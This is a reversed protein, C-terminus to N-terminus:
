EISRNGRAKRLLERAQQYLPFEHAEKEEEGKSQGSETMTRCSGREAAARRRQMAEALSRQNRKALRASVPFYATKEFLSHKGTSGKSDIEGEEEERGVHDKNRDTRGGEM